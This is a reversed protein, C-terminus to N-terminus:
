RVDAKPGESTILQKLVRLYEEGFRAGEIDGHNNLMENAQETLLIERSAYFSRVGIPLSKDRIPELFKEFTAHM